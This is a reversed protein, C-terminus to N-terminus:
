TATVKTKVSTGLSGVVTLNYSNGPILSVELNNTIFIPGNYTLTVSKGPNLVYGISGAANVTGTFPVPHIMSVPALTLSGNDDIRFYLGRNYVKPKIAAISNVTTTLNTSNAAVTASAHGHTTINAVDAIDGGSRWSTTNTGLAVTGAGNLVNGIGMGLSTNLDTGTNILPPLARANTKISEQVITPTQNGVLLLHNLTIIQNGENTLTVSLKTMNDDASMSVGTLSINGTIHNLETTANYNLRLREGVTTNTYFRVSSNQPVVVAKVSPVLVFVTSTNTYIEVVTPSLDLLVESTANLRGDGSVNTSIQDNPVTVNYSTGNIIISSSTVNFRASDVTVNNPLGIRAIVQSVNLLSTLNVEGGIGSSIWGDTSNGKVHVAVSSYSLLLANTGAPVTPPDTLSVPVLNTNESAVQVTTYAGTTQPVTAGSILIYAFVGILGISIAAAYYYFMQQKERVVVHAGIGSNRYDFEPNLKYYKWKRIYPNEAYMIAGMQLLEQIHQSVTSPSLNLQTSIESLTKNGNSILNLIKNKTSGTKTM